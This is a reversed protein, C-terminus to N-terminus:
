NVGFLRDVAEPDRAQTYILKSNFNINDFGVVEFLAEFSSEADNSDLSEQIETLVAGNAVQQAISTLSEDRMGAIMTIQYGNPSPFTALMGYDKYSDAGSLGSSSVYYEGTDLNSLEDYTSGVELGSGAFMLNYLDNLGSLYGLYVIHNNALDATTYESIMKLKIREPSVGQLLVQMVQTLAYATSSPIYNLSLDFYKETGEVGMEQLFTLEEPSNVDFERIMRLVDGRDDLEGFIYYDGVLILVPTEDDFMEKWPGLEAFVSATETEVEDQNFQFVLNLLLLFIAVGALWQTAAERKLPKGTVSRPDAPIEDVPIATLIYQGKPIDIRYKEQKGFKEFYTKLKNRLHYIHVRVISDKGVDFDTDRGLVDLAIAMEKPSNGNISCDALYSLIEGYTRSRGLVGSNIIRQILAQLEEPQINSM